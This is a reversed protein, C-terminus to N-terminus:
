GGFWQNAKERAERKVAREARLTAARADREEQNAAAKSAEDKAEAAAKLVAKPVEGVAVAEPQDRILTEFAKKYGEGNAGYKTKYTRALNRGNQTTSGDQGLLNDDYYKMAEIAAAHMQTELVPDGEGNMLAERRAVEADNIEGMSRQWETVEELINKRAEFRGDEHATQRKLLRQIRKDIVNDGINAKDEDTLSGEMQVLAKSDMLDWTRRNLKQKTSLGSQQAPNLSKVFRRLGEEAKRLDGTLGDLEKQLKKKETDDSAKEIEAKKTAIEKELVNIGKTTKHGHGDDEGEFFEDFKIRHSALAGETKKEVQDAQASKLRSHTHKYIADAEEGIAIAEKEKETLAQTKGKEKLEEAKKAQTQWQWMIEALDEGKMNEVTKELAIRNQIGGPGQATRAYERLFKAQYAPDKRHEIIYEEMSEQQHKFDEVYSAGSDSIKGYALGHMSNKLVSAGVEAWKGNKGAISEDVWDKLKGKWHGDGKAELINYARRGVYHRFGAQMLRGGTNSKLWKYGKMASSAGSAGLKEGLVLAMLFFQIIIIYNIITPFSVFFGEGVVPRLPQFGEDTMVTLGMWIIAIFIPAYFAEKLLKSWWERGYSETQHLLMATFALSSTMALIILQTLRKIFIIGASLFLCMLVFMTITGMVFIQGANPKKAFNRAGDPDNKNHDQYISQIQLSKMFVGAIGSEPSILEKVANAQLLYPNTLSSNVDWRNTVADTTPNVKQYFTIALINSADIIVKAFFMSFNILIAVLILKSLAHKVGHENLGLITSIALYILIFIFLINSFDRFIKWITSIATIDNFFQSINVVTINFVITFIGACIGLIYAVLGMIYYMLQDICNGIDFGEIIGLWCKGGNDPQGGADESNKFAEAAKTAAASSAKAEREQRQTSMVKGGTDTDTVGELATFKDLWQQEEATVPQGLNNKLMANFIKHVDDKSFNDHAKKSLYTNWDEKFKSYQDVLNMEDKLAVPAGNREFELKFHSEINTLLNNFNEDYKWYKDMLGGKGADGLEDALEDDEKLQTHFIVYEGNKEIAFSVIRNDKASGEGGDGGEDFFLTLKSGDKATLGLSYDATRSPNNIINLGDTYEQGYENAGIDPRPVTIPVSGAILETGEPTSALAYFDGNFVFLDADVDFFTEAGSIDIDKIVPLGDTLSAAKAQLAFASM